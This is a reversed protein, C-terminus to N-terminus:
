SKSTDRRGLAGLQTPGLPCLSVLCTERPCSKGFCIHSSCQRCAAAISQISSLRQLVSGSPGFCGRSLCFSHLQSMMAFPYKLILDTRVPMSWVHWGLCNSWLLNAARGFGNLKVSSQKLCLWKSLPTIYFVTFPADSSSRCQLFVSGLLHPDAERYSWLLFPFM